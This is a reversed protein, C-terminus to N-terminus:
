AARVALHMTVTGCETALPVVLRETGATIQTGHGTVVTPISIKCEHGRQEMRAAAHGGLINALEAMASTSLEDLVRVPEGAMRSAIGLVTEASMSLLIVGKLWGGLGVLVNVDDGSLAPPEWRPPGPDVAGGVEGRLVDVAARVFPEVLASDM